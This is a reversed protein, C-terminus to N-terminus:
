TKSKKEKGWVAVCMEKKEALADAKGVGRRTGGRSLFSLGV